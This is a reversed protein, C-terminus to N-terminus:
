RWMREAIHREESGLVQTYIATTELRAHALWRQVLHLPVGCSIAHVAFGHRLGRPTAQPGSIEAKDMAEHVISWAWTRRWPFLPPSLNCLCETLEEPVPVQRHHLQGRKKLSRFVLCGEQHLVQDHSLNLVESLRAGSWFLTQCFLKKRPNLDSTAAIFRQREDANLYKRQGRITFLSAGQTM